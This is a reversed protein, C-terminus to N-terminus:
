FSDDYRGRHILKDMIDRKQAEKALWEESEEEMRKRDLADRILHDRKVDDSESYYHNMVESLSIGLAESLAEPLM